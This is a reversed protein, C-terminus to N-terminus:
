EVTIAAQGTDSRALLSRLTRALEEAVVRNGSVNWHSDERFYPLQGADCQSALTPTLDLYTVQGPLRAAMERMRDPLDSLMWRAADADPEFTLTRRCARFKDPAFALVFQSGAKHSLSAAQALITELHGLAVKEQDTLPGAAYLFYLREKRGAATWWASRPIASPRPNGALYMLRELANRSFSRAAFGHRAARAAAFDQAFARYADINSLDNGEFFVWVIVRPQLPLAYRRVVALEQQPGYGIQGLNDVTADLSRALTSTLLDQASVYNNVVFSDGVVSVDVRDLMTQNRFGRADYSVDYEYTEPRPVDFSAVIDSRGSKGIRRDGPRPLYLLEPDPLYRPDRTPALIPTELVLRYDVVGLLTPLELLGLVLLLVVHVALFQLGLQRWPESSWLVWILWISGYTFALAAVFLAPSSTWSWAMAVLIVVIGTSIAARGIM